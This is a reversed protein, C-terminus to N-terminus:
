GPLFGGKPWENVDDVGLFHALAKTVDSRPSPRAWVKVASLAEAVRAAYGPRLVSPPAAEATTADKGPKSSTSSSTSSSSGSSSSSSTATATSTTTASAPASQTQKMDASSSSNDMFQDQQRVNVVLVAACVIVGLVVLAAAAVVKGPRRCQAPVAVPVEAAHGAVPAMMAALACCM